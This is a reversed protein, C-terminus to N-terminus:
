AAYEYEAMVPISAPMPFESRSWREVDIEWLYGKLHDIHAKIAAERAALEADSLIAVDTTTDIPTNM